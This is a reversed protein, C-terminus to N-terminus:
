KEGANIGSTSCSILFGVSGSVFDRFQTLSGANASTNEMLNRFVLLVLLSVIGVSAVVLIQARDCRHEAEREEERSINPPAPVLSGDEGGGGTQFGIQATAGDRTGGVAQGPMAGQASRSKTGRKRHQNFNVSIIYGFIGSASTRVVVDIGNTEATATEHLFLNLASQLMLLGLIILLCKDVLHVGGWKRCASKVRCVCKM